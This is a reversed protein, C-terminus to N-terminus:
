VDQSSLVPTHPTCCFWAPPLETRFLAALGTTPLKPWIGYIFEDCCPQMHLTCVLTLFIELIELDLLLLGLSNPVLLLM